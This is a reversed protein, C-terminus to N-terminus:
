DTSIIKSNGYITFIDRMQSSEELYPQILHKLWQRLNFDTKTELYSEYLAKNDTEHLNLADRHHLRPGEETEVFNKLMEAEINIRNEKEKAYQDLTHQVNRSHIALIQPQSMDMLNLTDLGINDALTDIFTQLAKIETNKAEQLKWNWYTSSSM